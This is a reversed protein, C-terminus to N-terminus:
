FKFISNYSKLISGVLQVLPATQFFDYILKKPRPLKKNVVFDVAMRFELVTDIKKILLYFVYLSRRPPTKNSLLIKTMSM